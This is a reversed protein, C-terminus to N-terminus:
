TFTNVSNKNIYLLSIETKEDSESLNEPHMLLINKIEVRDAKDKNKTYFAKIEDDIIEIQSKIHQKVKEILKVKKYVSKYEELSIGSMRELESNLLEETKYEDMLGDFHIKIDFEDNDNIEIGFKKAKQLLIAVKQAEVIADEKLLDLAKKGNIESEWFKERKDVKSLMGDVFYGFEEYYQIKMKELFYKYENKSITIGNVKIAMNKHVSTFHITLAVTTVISVLVVLILFKNKKLM